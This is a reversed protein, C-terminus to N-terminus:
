LMRRGNQLRASPLHQRTWYTSHLASLIDGPLQPPSSWTRSPEPPGYWRRSIRSSAPSTGAPFSRRLVSRAGRFSSWHRWFIARVASRRLQKTRIAVSVCSLMSQLSFFFLGKGCCQVKHDAPKICNVDDCCMWLFCKLIVRWICTAKRLLGKGLVFKCRKLQKGGCTHSDFCGEHCQLLPFRQKCETLIYSLWKVRRTM